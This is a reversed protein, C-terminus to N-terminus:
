AQPRARQARKRGKIVGLEAELKQKIKDRIHSRIVPESTRHSSATIGRRLNEDAYLDEWSCLSWDNMEVLAPDHVIITSIVNWLRPWVAASVSVADAQFRVKAFTSVANELPPSLRQPQLRFAPDPHELLIGVTYMVAHLHAAIEKAIRSFVTQVARSRGRTGPLRERLGISRLFLRTSERLDSNASQLVPFDTMVSAVERLRKPPIKNGNRFLACNFETQYVLELLADSASVDTALRRMARSARRYLDRLLLMSAERQVASAEQSLAEALATSVARGLSAM